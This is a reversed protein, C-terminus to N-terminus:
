LLIELTIYFKCNAVAFNTIKLILYIIQLELYTTLIQQM